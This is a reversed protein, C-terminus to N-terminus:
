AAAGMALGVAVASLGVRPDDSDSSPPEWNRVHRMSDVVRTSLGIQDELVGTVGRLSAGGGTLSMHEIQAGDNSTRFYQVSTRIEAVLPRLSDTLTRTLESRNDGLGIDCKAAEAKQVSIGMRDALQDTLQQGGRALTRVLRPVGREHIVITTLHAGLDIVAEVAPVEEAISRLSGFSSLDVRAVKLGALEVAAVAALVPERPTALLLGSVTNTDPDANGLQCFDLVVQDIPLAVIARAQFPLARARQKPELNPITMDRVLVQQNAIGLVVRKCGLEYQSWLQKLAATLVDPEQVVGNVVVGPELDISGSGHVTVAARGDVTRPALVTARIATAGIDLGIVHGDRNLVRGARRANHRPKM